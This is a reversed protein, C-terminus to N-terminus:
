LPCRRVVLTYATHDFAPHRVMSTEKCDGCRLAVSGPFLRMWWSRPARCVFDSGCQPCHKM